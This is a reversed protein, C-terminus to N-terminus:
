QGVGSCAPHSNKTEARSVSSSSSGAGCGSHGCIAITRVSLREVAYSLASEVSLDGGVLNGVVSGLMQFMLLRGLYADPLRLVELSEGSAPEVMHDREAVPGALGKGLEGAPGPQGEGGRRLVLDGPPLAAVPEQGVHQGPGQVPRRRAARDDEGGM